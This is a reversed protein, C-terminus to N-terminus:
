TVCRRSASFGATNATSSAQARMGSRSPLARQMWGMPWCVNGRWMCDFSKRISCPSMATLTRFHHHLTSVGMQAMTALDELHLPKAYNTRLWSVVKATRNSQEGLTAISRRHGGERRRLLRYIIEREILDSLFPIDQPEDLLDVLRMCASILVPTTEGIAMGQADAAEHMAPLEEESLITRVLPMELRILLGLIPGM